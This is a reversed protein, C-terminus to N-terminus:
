PMWRVKYLAVEPFSFFREPERLYVHHSWWSIEAQIFALRGTTPHFSVAKVNEKGELPKFPRFSGTNKDFSWVSEHETLLLQHAEDPGPVLDHGSMGPIKWSYVRDLAPSATNWDKLRYARLEDYGLAYLLEREADWVVGHGSYLSDSFLPKEPQGLDYLAIRNGAEHTSCAVAIRKGPLLEVSHANGAFAYFEVKRSAIDILAVGGASSSVLLKKGGEVPKCDDITNFYRTRYLEPLDEAKSARWHWVIRPLTDQLGNSEFIFLQDDGGAVLRAGSNHPLSREATKCALFCIGVLISTFVLEKM